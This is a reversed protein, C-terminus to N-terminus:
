GTRRIVALRRREIRCRAQRTNMRSIREGSAHSVSRIRVEGISVSLPIPIPIPIRSSSTHTSHLPIRPILLRLRNLMLKNLRLMNGISGSRSIREKRHRVRIWLSLLLLLVHRIIRILLRGCIRKTRIIERRLRKLILKCSECIPTIYSPVTTPDNTCTPVFLLAFSICM